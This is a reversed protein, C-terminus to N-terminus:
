FVPKGDAGALVEGGFLLEGGPDSLDEEGFLGYATGPLLGALPGDDGVDEEDPCGLVGGEAQFFLAAVEGADVDGEPDVAIGGVVADLLDAFAADLQQAQQGTGVGGATLDVVLGVEFLVFFHTDGGAEVGAVFAVYLSHLLVAVDDDAEFPDAADEEGVDVGVEEFRYVSM